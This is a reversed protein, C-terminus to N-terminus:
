SRTRQFYCLLVGFETRFDKKSGFTQLTFASPSNLRSLIQSASIFPPLCIFPASRMLMDSTHLHAMCIKVPYQTHQALCKGTGPVLLGELLQMVSV